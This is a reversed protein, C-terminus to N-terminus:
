PSIKVNIPKEDYDVKPNSLKKIRQDFNAWDNQGYRSFSRHVHRDYHLRSNSELLAIAVLVFKSPEFLDYNNEPLNKYKYTALKHQM